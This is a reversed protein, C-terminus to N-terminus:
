ESSLAGFYKESKYQVTTIVQSKSAKMMQLNSLLSTALSLMAPFTLHSLLLLFLLKASWFPPVDMLKCPREPM